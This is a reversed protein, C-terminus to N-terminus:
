FSRYFTDEAPQSAEAPQPEEAPSPDEAEAPPPDGAPRSEEAPRPGGAPRSEEAPRPGGAPRSEDAPRPGGAPRPEEAPSPAEAEAPSPDEAEAPRPGGAPRPEEAPRSEAAPRAEEAPRSAEAPPPDEAEEAPPTDGAPQSEEAHSADEAPRSEAAHSPDEAPRSEAATVPETTKDVHTIKQRKPSAEIRVHTEQPMNRKMSPEVTPEAPEQAVALSAAKATVVCVIFSLLRCGARCVCCVDRLVRAGKAVAIVAAKMAKHVKKRLATKKKYTDESLTFGEIMAMSAVEHAEAEWGDGTYTGCQANTYKFELRGQEDLVFEEDDPAEACAMYVTRSHSFAQRVWFLFVAKNRVTAAERQAQTKFNYDDSSPPDNDKCTVVM